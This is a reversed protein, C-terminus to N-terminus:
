WGLRSGDQRTKTCGVHQVVRGNRYLRSEVLGPNEGVVNRGYGLCPTNSALICQLLCAHSVPAYPSSAGFTSAFGLLIAYNWSHTFPPIFTVVAALISEHLTDGVDTSSLTFDAVSNLTQLEVHANSPHHQVRLCGSPRM